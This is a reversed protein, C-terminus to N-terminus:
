EPKKGNLKEILEAIKDMAKDDVTTKTMKSVVRGINYVAILIAVVKLTLAPDLYGVVTGAIAVITSLAVLIFESTKIGPKMNKKAEKLINILKILSFIDKIIM